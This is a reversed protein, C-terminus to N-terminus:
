CDTKRPSELLMEQQLVPLTSIWSLAHTPPIDQQKRVKPCVCIKKVHGAAIYLQKEQVPEGVQVVVPTYSYGQVMRTHMAVVAPNRSYSTRSWEQIHVVTPTCPFDQVM